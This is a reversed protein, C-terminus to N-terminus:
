FTTIKWLNAAAQDTMPLSSGIILKVAGSANFTLSNLHAISVIAAYARSDGCRLGVVHFM